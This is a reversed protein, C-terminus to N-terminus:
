TGCLLFSSKRWDPNKSRCAVFSVGDMGLLYRVLKTLKILMWNNSSTTLLRFLVPALSVYQKPHRRALECVVSVAASCVAPDTDDLRERLKGFYMGLSEPYRLFVKYLALVARKRVHPHAHTLLAAVDQALDRALESTMIDALTIVAM